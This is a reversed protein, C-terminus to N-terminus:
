QHPFARILLWMLMVHFVWLGLAVPIQARIVGYENKMSLLAAPVINFNAAMPTMLTGSAGATLTLIAAMAPDAGFPRVVLPVLIGSAIVPFAAFSNGMVMTLLTMSLCTAVVFLFLSDAPILRVIGGAILTGLKAATFIVGLSALLQPLINVSGMLENLRRGEQMLTLPGSRTLLMACIMAAISGYGLGILAGANADLGLRRYALAFLFTIAPILMVPLFIRDGVPRRASSTTVTANASGARAHHRVQGIGDLAVMALVLVGTVWHPLTSGFAFITGLILWFTGTGWRHGHSRDRFTLLAFIILMGGTLVYVAELSFITRLM